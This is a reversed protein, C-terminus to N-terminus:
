KTEQLEEVALRRRKREAGKACQSTNPYCGNLSAWPVLMDCCLCRQHLLKEEELIVITYWVHHHMFHVHIGTQTKSRVKCGEVPFYQSRAASPFFIWATKHEGEPPPDGVPIWPWLRSQDPPPISAVRGCTGSQLGTVSGVAAPPGM